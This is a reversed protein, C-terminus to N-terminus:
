PLGIITVNINDRNMYSDCMHMYLCKHLIQVLLVCDNHYSIMVDYVRGRPIYRWTSIEQVAYIDINIALDVHYLFIITIYKNIKSRFRQTHRSNYYFFFRLIFLSINEVYIRRLNEFLRVWSLQM